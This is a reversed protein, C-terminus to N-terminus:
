PEEPAPRTQTGITPRVPDERGTSAASAAASKRLPFPRSRGAWNLTHVITDDSSGLFFLSLFNRLPGSTDDNLYAFLMAYDDCNLIWSRHLISDVLCPVHYALDFPTPLM